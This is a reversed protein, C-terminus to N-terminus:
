FSCHREPAERNVVKALTHGFAEIQAQTAGDPPFEFRTANAVGNDNHCM